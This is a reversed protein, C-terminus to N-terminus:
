RPGIAIFHFRSDILANADIQRALLRVTSTTVGGSTGDIVMVASATSNQLDATATVTPRGAFPTTFTITYTGVFPGRTATFGTGAIIIGNGAVEGRIIRLNEEGATAPLQTPGLRVQGNSTARLAQGAPTYIIVDGIYSTLYTADDTTSGDGVYGVHTGAGDVFTMWTTNAVGAVQGQIRVGEGPTVVHLPAQPVTNSGIGVNGDVTLASTAMRVGGNARVSFQNEATSAFPGGQSDAWVFAGLHNAKAQNGAAFSFVGGAANGFGGPIAAFAANSGVINNNGGSIASYHAASQVQNIGGGAIVVQINTAHIRNQQGGGIASYQVLRGLSNTHGGAIVSHASEELTNEWGGGIASGLVGPDIRNGLGGAIVSYQGGNILNKLGGGIASYFGNVRIDNEQGGAITAAPTLADIINSGGIVSPGGFNNVQLRLARRGNVRFELPQNDTTGLFNAATTGSNGTTRWFQNTNLGGLTSANVGTLGAGNGTFSNGTNNFTVPSTYTGVLGTGPVVGTVNRATIAYPTATIPQRPDLTVFAGGGNSRVGIDLWRPAGNFPSSGFDLTATFLGNSITVATNTIPTGLASGASAADYIAFRLDYIGSAPGGADNLRGQYTFVTGQGQM